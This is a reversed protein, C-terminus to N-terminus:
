APLHADDVQTLQQIGSGRLRPLVQTCMTECYTDCPSAELLMKKPPPTSSSTKSRAPCVM